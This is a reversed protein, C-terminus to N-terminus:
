PAPALFVHVVFTGSLMQVTGLYQDRFIDLDRADHGSGYIKVVRDELPWESDCIFWLCLQESQAQVSL